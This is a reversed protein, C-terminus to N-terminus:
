GREGGAAGDGSYDEAADDQGKLQPTLVITVETGRPPIKDSFAEFLLSANSQSSEVPLDLMASAFNSICIFDGDEAMYFRQGTKEDVWFSSGGFVWTHEMPKGTKVNRIWDQARVERVRGRADRWYVNIEIPTGRAPRYQPTFQVAGGPKAGLALLGAHAVYAKTRAAVISEHEKTGKLCAFMELQGETVAIAGNIVLRKRELDLWIEDEPDLRVLGATEGQPLIPSPAELSQRKQEEQQGHASSAHGCVQVVGVAVLAAALGLFRRQRSNDKMYRTM